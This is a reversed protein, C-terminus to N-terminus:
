LRCATASRLATKYAALKAATEKLRWDHYDKSNLKSDFYSVVGIKDTNSVSWNWNATFWTEPKASEALCCGTEGVGVMPNAVGHDSLWALVRGLRKAFGEGGGNQYVDVGLFPMRRLVDPTLYYEPHGDPNRPNFSWDGIIPVFAVNALGAEDKMVDYHRVYAAAWAAGIGEDNTPEHHFTSILPRSYSAYRRARARIDADFAGIGILTWDLTPGQPPKFSVWPLRNAAHDAKIAVDEGADKWTFFSRHAGVPGTSALSAKMDPSSLGLYVRGPKHGPWRPTPVALTPSCTADSWAAAASGGPVAAATLSLGSLSLFKRRDM